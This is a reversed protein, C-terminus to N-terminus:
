GRGRRPRHEYGLRDLSRAIREDWEEQQRKRERARLDRALLRMAEALDRETEPKM